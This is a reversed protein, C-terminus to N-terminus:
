GIAPLYPIFESFSIQSSTKRCSEWCIVGVAILVQNASQVGTVSSLQERTMWVVDSNLREMMVERKESFILSIRVSIKEQSKSRVIRAPSSPYSFFSSDSEGIGPMSHYVNSRKM